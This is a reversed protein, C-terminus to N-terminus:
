GGSIDSIGSSAVSAGAYSVPSGMGYVMMAGGVAAKAAGFIKKNYSQKKKAKAEQEALYEKKRRIEMLANRDLEAESSQLLRQEEAAFVKYAQQMASIKADLAQQMEQQYNMLEQENQSQQIAYDALQRSHKFRDGRADKEFELRNSLLKEQVDRGLSALQSKQEMERRNLLDRQVMENQQEQMRRQEQMMQETKAAAATQSATQAAINQGQLMAQETAMQSAMQQASAPGAIPAQKIQQQLRIQRAAELQDFSEQDVIPMQGGLEPIRNAM